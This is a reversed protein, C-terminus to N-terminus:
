DFSHFDKWIYIERVTYAAAEAGVVGVEINEGDGLTLSFDTTTTAVTSCNTGNTDCAWIEMNNDGTEQWRARVMFESGEVRNADTTALQTSSGDYERIYPEIDDWTDGAMGVRLYYGSDCLIRFISAAQVWGDTDINILFQIAGAEPAAITSGAVDSDFTYYDGAGSVVVGSSVSVSGNASATTDGDSCGGDTVVNVNGGPWYMGGAGACFDGGPAAPAGGGSGM